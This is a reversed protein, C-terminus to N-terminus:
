FNAVPIIFRDEGQGEATWGVVGSSTRVKWWVIKDVCRFDDLILATEGVKLRGVVKGSKGPSSRVNNPTSSDPNIEITDGKLLNSDPAGPCTNAYIGLFPGMYPNTFEPDTAVTLHYLGPPMWAGISFKYVLRGQTDTKVVDFATLAGLYRLRRQYMALALNQSAPLNLGHLVLEEGPKITAMDSRGQGIAYMNNLPGFPPNNAIDLYLVPLGEPWSAQFAGSVQTSGSQATVKWPRSSAQPPYWVHLVIIVPAGPKRFSYGANENNVPMTQNLYINGGITDGMVFEAVGLPKGDAANVKLSLVDKMELGILCIIGFRHEGADRGGSLIAPLAGRYNELEAVCIKFYDVPYGSAGAFSLQRALSNLLANRDFPTPTPTRPSIRTATVAAM